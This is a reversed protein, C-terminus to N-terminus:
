TMQSYTKFALIVDKTLAIEPYGNNFYLYFEDDCVNQELLHTTCYITQNCVYVALKKTEDTTDRIDYGLDLLVKVLHLTYKLNGSLPQPVIYLRHNLEDMVHTGYRELFHLVHRSPPATTRYVAPFYHISKITNQKSLIDKFERYFVEESYNYHSFYFRGINSPSGYWCGDQDLKLERNQLIVDYDCIFLEDYHMLVQLMRKRDDLLLQNITDIDENFVAQHLHLDPVQFYAMAEPDRFEVCMRHIDALTLHFASGFKQFVKNVMEYAGLEIAHELIDGLYIDREDMSNEIIDFAETELGKLMYLLILERESLTKIYPTYALQDAKTSLRLSSFAQFPEEIGLNIDRFEGLEFHVRNVLQPNLQQHPQIYKM